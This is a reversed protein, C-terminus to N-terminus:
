KKKYVFSGIFAVVNAIIILYAGTSLLEFSLEAMNVVGVATVVLALINAIFAIKTKILAIVIGIINLALVIMGDGEIYPVSIFWVKAFPLFCGIISLVNGLILMWFGATKFKGM